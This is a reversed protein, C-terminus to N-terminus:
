PKNARVGEALERVLKLINERMNPILNGSQDIHAAIIDVLASGVVVADAIKAIEQAQESSRIGFGVAVPVKTHAKVQEVHHKVSKIAAKSTGTIGAISVHYIFGSANELICPLRLKSTTPTTLFIFNLGMEIAPICLEEKEEPPLDVIILGDIGAQKSDKIFKETGYAYIPNFYGMLIIPTTNDVKRYESVLNITKPLTMGNALARISSAQIAPGDAMPDSFPMGIEIFDAGAASLGKLIDLSSHFDPDGATLFTVLGSRNQKKLQSFRNNIRTKPFTKM